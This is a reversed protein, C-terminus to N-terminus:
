SHRDSPSWMAPTLENPMPPVLQWTTTLCAGSSGAAVTSAPRCGRAREVRAVLFAVPISGVTNGHLPKVDSSYECGSDRVASRCVVLHPGFM